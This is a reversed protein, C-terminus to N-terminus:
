NPWGYTTTIGVIYERDPEFTERPIMMEQMRTVWAHREVLRSANTEADAVLELLQVVYYDVPGDARLEWSVDIPRTRSLQLEGDNVVFAGGFAPPSPIAVSAIATATGCNQTAAYFQRAGPALVTPMGSGKATVSRVRSIGTRVAENHGSFPNTYHVQGTFPTPPGNGAQQALWPGLWPGFSPEPVAVVFTAFNPPGFSAPIVQDMRALEATRDVVMQVCKELVRDELVCGAALPEGNSMGVSIKASRKLANYALGSVDDVVGDFELCYANDRPELLRPRGSLFFDPATWDLSWTGMAVSTWFSWVGTTALAIFRPTPGVNTMSVDLRSGVDPTTGDRTLERQVHRLEETNMVYTLPARDAREFTLHYTMGRTWAFHFDDGERVVEPRAGNALVVSATVDPSSTEVVPGGEEGVYQRM